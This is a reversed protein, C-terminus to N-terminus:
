AHHRHGRRAAVPDVLSGRRQGLRARSRPRRAASVQTGVAGFLGKRPVELHELVRPLFNRYSDVQGDIAYVPCKIRSYDMAVSGHQWFGDYRQHSLWEALIPPTAKLRALWMERWRPGVIAPDPPGVLVTKFEAGWDYNDLTLAGGVYHADDTYRNDTACNPM